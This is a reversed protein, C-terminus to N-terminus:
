ITISTNSAKEKILNNQGKNKLGGSVIANNYKLIKNEKKNVLSKNITKSKENFVVGKNQNKNQIFNENITSNEKEIIENTNNETLQDETFSNKNDLLLEQDQIKNTTGKKQEFKNEVNSISNNDSNIPNNKEIASDNDRNMFLFFGLILTAAIGVPKFWFPIIRRKKKKQNLRAEIANWSDIPPVVEFDKFKEQFLREINKNEKM